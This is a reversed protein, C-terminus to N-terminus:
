IIPFAKTVKLKQLSKFDNFDISFIVEILLLRLLEIEVYTYFPLIESKRHLCKFHQTVSWIKLLNKSFVTKKNFCYAAAKLLFWTQETKLWFLDMKYFFFFQFLISFLPTWFQCFLSLIVKQQFLRFFFQVFIRSLIRLWNRRLWVRYINVSNWGNVCFIRKGM